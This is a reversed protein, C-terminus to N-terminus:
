EATSLTPSSVAIFISMGFLFLGCVLMPVALLIRQAPTFLQLRVILWGGICVAFSSVTTVGFIAVRVPPPIAWWIRRLSPM